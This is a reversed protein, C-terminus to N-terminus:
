GHAAIGVKIKWNDTLGKDDRAENTVQKLGRQVWARIKAEEVESPHGPEIEARVRMTVKATM